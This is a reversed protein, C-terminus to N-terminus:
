KAHVLNERILKSWKEAIELENSLAANQGEDYFVLRTERQDPRAPDFALEIRSMMGSTGSGRTAKQVKCTHIGALDVVQQVDSGNQSKYFYIKKPEADMGIIFNGGIDYKSVPSGNDDAIKRLSTLRQHVRKRRSVYMLAFPLACIAILVLGVATTCIEM